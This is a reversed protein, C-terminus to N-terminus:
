ACAKLSSWAVATALNGSRSGFTLVQFVDGPNSNQLSDPFFSSGLPTDPDSSCGSGIVVAAMLLLFMNLKNM